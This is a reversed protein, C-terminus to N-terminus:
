RLKQPIPLGQDKQHVSDGELKTGDAVDTVM